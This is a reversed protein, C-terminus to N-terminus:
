DCVSRWAIGDYGKYGEYVKDVLEQNYYEIWPKHNGQNEHPLRTPLGFEGAFKKWDEELSEFKIIRDIALIGDISLRSFQSGMLGSPNKLVSEIFKFFPEKNKRGESYCSVLRDYPNRVITFKVGNSFRDIGIRDRLSEVTEHCARKSWGLASRISTGGTKPIHIFLLESNIM